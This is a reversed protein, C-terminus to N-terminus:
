PAGPAPPDPPGTVAAPPAYVAYVVTPHEPEVRAWGDPTCPLELTGRTETQWELTGGSQVSMTIIDPLLEVGWGRGPGAFICIDCEWGRDQTTFTPRGESDVGTQTTYLARRIVMSLGVSRRVPDVGAPRLLPPFSELPIVISREILNTDVPLSQGDVVVSAPSEPLPDPLGLTLAVTSLWDMWDGPDASVGAVLRTVRM